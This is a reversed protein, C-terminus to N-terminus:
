CLGPPKSRLRKSRPGAQLGEATVLVGAPQNWSGTEFCGVAFRSSRVRTSLKVMVTAKHSKSMDVIADPRARPWQCTWAWIEQALGHAWVKLRTSCTKILWMEPAPQFSFWFSVVRTNGGKICVCIWPDNHGQCTPVVGVDQAHSKYRGFAAFFTQRSSFVFCFFFMREGRPEKLGRPRECQGWFSWPYSSGNLSFYSTKLPLESILVFDM